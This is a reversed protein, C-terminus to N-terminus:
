KYFSVNEHHKPPASSFDIVGSIAHELIEHAAQYADLGGAQTYYKKMKAYTECIMWASWEEDVKTEPKLEEFDYEVDLEIKEDVNKKKSKATKEVVQKSNPHKLGYIKEIPMREALYAVSSYPERTQSLPFIAALVQLSKPMDVAPFVLGPCDVLM